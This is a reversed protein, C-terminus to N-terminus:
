SRRRVNSITGRVAKSAGDSSPFAEIVGNAGAQWAAPAVVGALGPASQLKRVIAARSAGNEVLIDFPKMVGASIGAATLADRGVIADGSGPLDKAQAESPNLQFGYFLLVAVIALGVLGVALPRRM